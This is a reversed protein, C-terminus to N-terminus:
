GGRRRGLSRGGGFELAIASPKRRDGGTEELAFAADEGAINATANALFPGDAVGVAADLFRLKQAVTFERRESQVAGGPAEDEILVESVPKVAVGEARKNADLTLLSAL